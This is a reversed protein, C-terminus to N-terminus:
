ISCKFKKTSYFIGKKPYKEDFKNQQEYVSKSVLVIPKKEKKVNIWTLCSDPFGFHLILGYKWYAMSPGSLHVLRPSDIRMAIIFEKRHLILADM